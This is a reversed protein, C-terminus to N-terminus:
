KSEPKEQKGVPPPTRQQAATTVMNLVDTASDFPTASPSPIGNEKRTLQVLAKLLQATRGYFWSPNPHGGLATGREANIAQQALGEIHRDCEVLFQSLDAIEAPTIPDNDTITM